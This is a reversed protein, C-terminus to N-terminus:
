EGIKLTDSVTTNVALYHANNYTFEYPASVKSVDLILVVAEILDDLDDTQRENTGVRAILTVIRNVKYADIPQGADDLYPDGPQIIIAPAVITEPVYDYVKAGIPGEEIPTLAAKLAARQTTLTM